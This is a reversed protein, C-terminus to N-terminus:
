PRASERDLARAAVDNRQRLLMADRTDRPQPLALCSNNSIFFPIQDAGPYPVASPNFCKLHDRSGVVEVRWNCTRPAEHTEQAANSIAPGSTEGDRSPHEDIGDYEYTKKFQLTASQTWRIRRRCCCRQRTSM